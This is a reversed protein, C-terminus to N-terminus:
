RLIIPKLFHKTAELRKRAMIKPQFQRAAMFRTMGLNNALFQKAIVLCKRPWYKQCSDWGIIM